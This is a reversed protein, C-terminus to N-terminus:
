YKENYEGPYRWSPYKFIPKLKISVLYLRDYLISSVGGRDDAIFVGLSHPFIGKINLHFPEKYVLQYVPQKNENVIELAIESSNRDWDSPLNYLVNKIIKIPPFGTKSYIDVDVYM